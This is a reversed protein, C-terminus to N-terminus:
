EPDQEIWGLDYDNLIASIESHTYKTKGSVFSPDKGSYKVIFKTGDLSRRITSSSEEILSFDVSSLESYNLIVYIM